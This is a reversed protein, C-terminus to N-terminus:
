SVLSKHKVTSIENELNLVEEELCGFGAIRENIEASIPSKLVQYLDKFSITTFRELSLLVLLEYDIQDDTTLYRGTIEYYIEVVKQDTQLDNFWSTGVLPIALSFLVRQINNYDHLLNKAFEFNQSISRKSEGPLGFLFPLFVRIKKKYLYSITNTIKVKDSSRNAKEVIDSSISELGIFIEVVGLEDLVDIEAPTLSEFDAYIRFHVNFDSPKSKLLRRHYSGSLFNDGTEFFYNIGYKENLLRIQNWALEPNLINMKSYRPIACYSCAGVTIAKLCGRLSSIPVPTLGINENYHKNRSDYKQIDTQYLDEFDFPITQKIPTNKKFTFLVKGNLRYWLNPITSSEDVLGLLAEEGDGYVVYDVEPHNTLIREGLNSANPGGFVIKSNPNNIKAKQALFLSNNHNTFWDSFGVIDGNLIVSIDYLNTINGDIIQIDLKQKSHRKLFSSLIALGVPPPYSDYGTRLEQYKFDNPSYVLQIKM